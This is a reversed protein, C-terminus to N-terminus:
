YTNKEVQKRAELLAITQPPPSKLLFHLFSFNPNLIEVYSSNLLQTHQIFSHKGEKQKKNGMGSEMLEGGM